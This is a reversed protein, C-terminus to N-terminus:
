LPQIINEREYPKFWRGTPEKPLLSLRQLGEVHHLLCTFVGSVAKRECGKVSCQKETEDFQNKTFFDHFSAVYALLAHPAVFAEELWQETDIQPVRFLYEENRWGWALSGQWQQGCIRCRYLKHIGYTYTQLLELVKKLDRSKKIRKSVAQRAFEIDEYDACSCSKRAIGFIM